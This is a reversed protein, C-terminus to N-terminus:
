MSGFSDRITKRMTVLVKVLTLLGKVTTMLINLQSTQTFLLQRLVKIIDVILGFIGVLYM